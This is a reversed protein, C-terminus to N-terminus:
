TSKQVEEEWHRIRRAYTTEWERAGISCNQRWEDTIPPLPCNPKLKVQVWHNNNVFGIAFIEHSSVTKCPSRLLPFFTFNANLNKSLSVFIVNYRSAICYGIEPIMMWKDSNQPGLSDVKLSSRVSSITDHFVKSYLQQQQSVEVDLQERVLPWSEEGMELLAGIARFGCNGDDDVDIIDDIYKHLFIPFQSLYYRLSKSSLHSETPKTCLRKTTQSGQSDKVYKWMSPDCHVDSEQSQKRKNIERKPTHKMSPLCMSTTSSHTLEWVKKKMMRKGVIDLTNFHKKLEQCEEELNLQTESDEQSVKYKSTMAWKKHVRESRQFEMKENSATEAAKVRERKKIECNHQQPIPRIWRGNVWNHHLRLKREPYSQREKWDYFDVVWIGDGSSGSIWGEWWGGNYYADVDDGIRFDHVIDKPPIPRLQSLKAKERLGKTKDEKEMIKDYKVYFEDGHLCRIIKGTFWSGQFGKVYNSIEVLVGPRFINSAASSSRALPKSAM